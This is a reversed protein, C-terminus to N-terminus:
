KLNFSVLQRESMVGQSSQYARSRVIWKVAPAYWYEGMLHGSMDDFAQLRVARIVGAPVTVEEIGRISVIRTFTKQFDTELNHYNFTTTWHKDRTLPWNFLEYPKDRSEVLRGNRTIVYLGLTDRTYSREETASAVIYVPVGNYTEEKKVERIIIDKKGVGSESYTWQDGVRWRPVAIVFAGQPRPKVTEKLYNRIDLSFESWSREFSRDFDNSAVFKKVAGFKERQMLRDFAVFALSYTRIGGKPKQFESWWSKEQTLSTIDPLLERHQIVEQMARHMAMDYPQWGLRHLTKAAVWEAFGERFWRQGVQRDGAIQYYVNHAYEHALIRILSGWPARGVLELNIHMTNGVAFAPMNSEPTSLSKHKGWYALSAANKHLNIYLPDVNPLGLDERCVTIISAMAQEITEIQRPVSPRFSAIKSITIVQPREPSGCGYFVCTILLFVGLSKQVPNIFKLGHISNAFGGVRCAERSM